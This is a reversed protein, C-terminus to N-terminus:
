STTTLRGRWYLPTTYNTSADASANLRLYPGGSTPGRYAYYGVVASTSGTWSLSASHPVPLVGSGSLPIVVTSNTANSTVTVSGTVSGPSAPAFAVNLTAAIGPAIILGGSVGSASGPRVYQREFYKCKFTRHQHIDRGAHQQHWRICQWLELEIPEPELARSDYQSYAHRRPFICPLGRSESGRETPSSTRDPHRRSLGYAGSASAFRM